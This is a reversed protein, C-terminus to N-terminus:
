TRSRASRVDVLSSVSSFLRLARWCVCMCVGSVCKTRREEPVVLAERGEVQDAPLLAVLPDPVHGLEAVVRPVPRPPPRLPLSACRHHLLVVDVALAHRPVLAHRLVLHPSTPLPLPPVRRVRRVRHTTLPTNDMHTPVTVIVSMFDMERQLCKEEVRRRRRRTRRWEGLSM